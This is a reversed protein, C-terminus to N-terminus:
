KMYNKHNKVIHLVIKLFYNNIKLMKDCFKYVRTVGLKVFIYM